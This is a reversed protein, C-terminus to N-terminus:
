DRGRLDPQVLLPGLASILLDGYICVGRSDSGYGAVCKRVAILRQGDAVIDPKHPISM